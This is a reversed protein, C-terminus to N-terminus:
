HPVRDSDLLDADKKLLYRTAELNHQSVAQHLPTATVWLLNNFSDGGTCHMEGKANLSGGRYLLMVIALELTIPHVIPELDVPEDPINLLWHLPTEGLNNAIAARASVAVFKIVM